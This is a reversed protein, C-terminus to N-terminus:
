RICTATTRSERRNAPMTARRSIRRPSIHLAKLDATMSAPYSNFAVNECRDAWATDGSVAMLIEDSLMEEVMGCTEVAQRPGNFGPRANEDAGFMGGPVQGFLARVKRWDRETAALDSRSRSVQSFIAPERFGQAVNVNHWDIVDKDWRATRRHTKRALDLLWPEGTRNYLWLINYIQDGGRMSPWYGILFKAEPVAALYRFYKRMLDIVRHDGSRDYYTRLCFLMIMNPWLDDRGKLDTCEGTRGAGPGFWGDPQQSVVGRRDM